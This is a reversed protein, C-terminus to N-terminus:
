RQRQNRAKYEATSQARCSELWNQLDDLRYHIAKGVRLFPPGIGQSRQTALTKYSLGLFKCADRCNVRGDPFVRIDTPAPTLVTQM